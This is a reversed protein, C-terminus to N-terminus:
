MMNKSNRFIVCEIIVNSCIYIIFVEVRNHILQLLDQLLPLHKSSVNYEKYKDETNVSISGAQFVCCPCADGNNNNNRTKLIEVCKTIDMHPGGINFTVFIPM